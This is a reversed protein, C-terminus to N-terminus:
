RRKKVPRRVGYLSVTVHRRQKRQGAGIVRHLM